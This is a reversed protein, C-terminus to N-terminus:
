TRMSGGSWALALSGPGDKQAAQVTTLLLGRSAWNM